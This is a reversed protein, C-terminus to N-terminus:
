DSTTGTTDNQIEIWYCTDAALAVPPNLGATYEYEDLGSFQFGTAAKQLAVLSPTAYVTGPVSVPCGPVWDSNNTYITVTFADATVQDDCDPDGANVDWYGGWWCIENLTRAAGGGIREAAAIGTGTAFAADSVTGTINGSGHGDQDPLQCNVVLNCVVGLDAATGGGGAPGGSLQTAQAGGTLQPPAPPPADGSGIVLPTLLAVSM